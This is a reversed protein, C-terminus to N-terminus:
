RTLDLMISWAYFLGSTKAALNYLIRCAAMEITPSDLIFSIPLYIM